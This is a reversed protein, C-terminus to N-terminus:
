KSGGREIGLDRERILTLRRAIAKRLARIKSPDGAKESGRQFRLNWVQREMEAVDRRLDDTTKERLETTSTTTV